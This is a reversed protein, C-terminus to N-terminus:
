RQGCPVSRFRLKLSEGAKIRRLGDPADCSHGAQTVTGALAIGHMAPTLKGTVSQATAM